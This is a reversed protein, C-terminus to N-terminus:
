CQNVRSHVRSLAGAMAQGPGASTHSSPGRTDVHTGIHLDPTLTIRINNAASATSLGHTRGGCPGGGGSCSDPRSPGGRSRGVAVRSRACSTTMNRRPTPPRRRMTLRERSRTPGGGGGCLRCLSLASRARRGQPACADVPRLPSSWCRPSRPVSVPTTVEPSQARPPHRRVCRLERLHRLVLLTYSYPGSGPRRM